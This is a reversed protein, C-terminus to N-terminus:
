ADKGFDVEMALGVLEAVTNVGIKELIRARHHDVTRPSIDLHRAVDKSSNAGPNAVMFRAIERERDTLADFRARAASSEAHEVRQVRDLEIAAEIREILVSQKFPKELFDLAGHKIAQVSEPIGGHGTIFIIPIRIDTEILRRQLALGDMQPMGYDLILCGPAKGDYADLFAQASAFARVRYGRLGLARALSVRITEDDDVLFVVPTATAPETM